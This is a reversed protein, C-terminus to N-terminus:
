GYVVFGGAPVTIRISSGQRAEVTGAHHPFDEATTYLCQMTTGPPHISSDVVISVTLGNDTDTNVACLLEKRAFVRSWAIIWHLQGNM